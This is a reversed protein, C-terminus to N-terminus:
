VIFSKIKIKMFINKIDIYRKNIKTSKINKVQSM